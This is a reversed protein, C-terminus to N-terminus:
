TCSRDVFESGFAYVETSLSHNTSRPTFCCSFNGSEDYVGSIKLRCYSITIGLWHADKLDLEDFSLNVM